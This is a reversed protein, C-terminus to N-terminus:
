SNFPGMAKLYAQAVAPFDWPYRNAPPRSRGDLYASALARLEGADGYLDIPAGEAKLWRTLPLDAALIPRGLHLLHLLSSSNSKFRMPALFLDCLRLHSGVRDPPLWGTIRVRGALGRGAAEGEIRTRLGEEGRPGGLILLHVGPDLGALLALIQGYDVAPNLFGFLGLVARPERPFFDGRAPASVSESPAHFALPVTALVKGPARERLLDANPGSLPIVRYAGYGYAQLRRERAYARHRWRYLARKAWLAPPFAARLSAYPFAFPDEAYVEHPVAYIRGPFRAGLRIMFAPDPVLSREYHVLIARCDALARSSASAERFPIFVPDCGAALAAALREVYDAIGCPQTQDPGILGIRAKSPM